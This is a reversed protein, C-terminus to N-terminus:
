LITYSRLRTMASNKSVESDDARRRYRFYRLAEVEYLLRCMIFEHNCTSDLSHIQAHANLLHWTVVLTLLKEKAM